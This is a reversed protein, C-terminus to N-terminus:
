KRCINLFPRLMFLLGNGRTVRSICIQTADRIAQNSTELRFDLPTDRRSTLIDFLQSRRHTYQNRDPHSQRIIQTGKRKLDPFILTQFTKTQSHVTSDQEIM